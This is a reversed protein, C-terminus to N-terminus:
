DPILSFGTIKMQDIAELLKKDLPKYRDVAPDPLSTAPCLGKVSLEADLFVMEATDEEGELTEIMRVLDPHNPYSICLLQAEQVWVGIDPLVSHQAM